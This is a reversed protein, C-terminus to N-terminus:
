NQSIKGSKRIQCTTRVNLYAFYGWSTTNWHPRTGSFQAMLPLISKEIFKKLGPYPTGSRSKFRTYQELISSEGSVEM